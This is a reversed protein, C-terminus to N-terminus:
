SLPHLSQLPDLTTTPISYLTPGENPLNWVQAVLELTITLVLGM